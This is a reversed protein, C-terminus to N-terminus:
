KIGREKCILDYAKTIKDFKENASRIDNESVNGRLRDPHYKLALKRYA